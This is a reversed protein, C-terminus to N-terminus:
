QGGPITLKKATAQDLEASGAPLGNRKLIYATIAMIEKGPLSGPNTAPMKTHEFTYLSEVTQGGWHQKFPTGILAPGMAGTLDPRHCEACHNNFLDHGSDAQAATYFGTDALAASVPICFSAAAIAASLMFKSTTM